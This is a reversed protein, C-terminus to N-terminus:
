ILCFRSSTIRANRAANARSLVRVCAKSIESSPRTSIVRLRMPSPRTSDIDCIQGIHSPRPRRISCSRYQHGDGLPVELHPQCRLAAVVGYGRLEAPEADVLVEPAVDDARAT